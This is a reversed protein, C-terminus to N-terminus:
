IAWNLVLAPVPYNYIHYPSVLTSTYNKLPAHNFPIHLLVIISKEREEATFVATICTTPLITPEVGPQAQAALGAGHITNTTLLSRHHRRLKGEIIRHNM